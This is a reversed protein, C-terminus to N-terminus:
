KAEESQPPSVLASERGAEYAWRASWQRDDGFPIHLEIWRERAQDERPPPATPFQRSRWAQELETAM